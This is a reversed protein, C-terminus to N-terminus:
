LTLLEAPAGIIEVAGSTQLEERERFGWLVGVPVMGAARATQMDTDTDGLYLWEAAPIDLQRAIALASTPDPKLPAGARHGRVVQFPNPQFFHAIMQNTFDDPKNSLVALQCGRDALARVLEGIGPYLRTEDFCHAAYYARMRALVEDILEQRQAPLARACLTRAGDGVMRRYSAPPHAPCGVATLAANTANALDALSDALTGDLDFLVASYNRKM